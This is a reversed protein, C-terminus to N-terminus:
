GRRLQEVAAQRTVEATFMFGRGRLTKIYTQTEGSDDLAKRAGKICTSATTDSVLRGKWVAAILDERSFM